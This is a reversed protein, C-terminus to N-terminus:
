IIQNMEINAMRVSWIDYRTEKYFLSQVKNKDIFLVDLLVGKNM